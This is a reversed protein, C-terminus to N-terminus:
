SNLFNKGYSDDFSPTTNINNTPVALPPNIAPATDVNDVLPNRKDMFEKQFQGNDISEPVLPLVPPIQDPRGGPLVLSAASSLAGSTSGMANRSSLADDKRQNRLISEKSGFIGGLMQSKKYADAEARDADTTQHVAGTRFMNRNGGPM